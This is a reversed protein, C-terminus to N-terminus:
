WSDLPTLIAGKVLACKTTGVASSSNESNNQFLKLNRPLTNLPTEETIEVCSLEVSGDDTSQLFFVTCIYICIIYMYTSINDYLVSAQSNWAISSNSNGNSLFSDTIPSYISNYVTRNKM